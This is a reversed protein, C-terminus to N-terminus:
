RCVEPRNNFVSKGVGEGLTSGLGCGLIKPHLSGSPILRPALGKLSLIGKWRQSVGCSNMSGLRAGLPLLPISGSRANFAFV